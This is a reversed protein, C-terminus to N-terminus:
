EVSNCKKFIVSKYCDCIQQNSEILYPEERFCLSYQNDILLVGVM